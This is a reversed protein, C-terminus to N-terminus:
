VDLRQCPLEGCDTIQLYYLDESRIGYNTVAGKHACLNLSSRIGCKTLLLQVRYAREYDSIYIRIGNSDTNSGDTDALGAVFHLIASRHWSAIANLSAPNTKLSKLFEGSFGLDTVDTFTPSYEYSRAPSSNGATQLAMKEAYLRVKARNKQDTTGDGVAVGLTYAYEPDINIGDEYQITFPETHIAYKSVDMLDKTYVEQYQEGFRDKVFFRHQETVDLHTGDAFKVRYLPRDGGTQFPTVQSWQKGNWIEVPSGVIDKIKHLGDRTILLTDGSVCHFNAGIIEGCNHAVLGNADFCNPGPVTCDYVPEIGDSQISAVTVAFRERYIGRKYNALISTLKEAKVPDAFGVIEQFYLLNDKSIVLEHQAQCYYEAPQRDTDPLLRYGAPRRNEYITSIIGLRALMRQVVQLSELNSQPLRISVGKAQTGQVSGDADFFGRLFGQYFQYSTEEIAPKLHKDGPIIGFQAALKALGSSTIVRHKLQKNYCAESTTPKYGVATELLSVAYQSMADQTKEWYRLVATDNWATKTLSGDGVLNGILWGEAETGHGSWASINRHDHLLIRDGVQLNETEVWDLYQKKQTQANVKLLRHNK